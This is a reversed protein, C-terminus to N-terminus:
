GLIVVRQFDPFVDDFMAEIATVFTEDPRTAVAKGSSTRSIAKCYLLGSEIKVIEGIYYYIANNPFDFSKITMGITYNTM